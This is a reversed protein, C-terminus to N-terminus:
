VTTHAGNSILFAEPTETDATGM